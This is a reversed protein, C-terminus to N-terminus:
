QRASLLDLKQETITAITAAVKSESKQSCFVHEISYLPPRRLDEKRNEFAAAVEEESLKLTPNDALLQKEMVQILRRKVVEDNLHLRRELAQDFLSAESEDEALQLFEMNRILRQSIIGDYFHFDLELALKFLM